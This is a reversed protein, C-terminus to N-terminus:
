DMLLFAGSAENIADVIANTTRTSGTLADIVSDSSSSDTTLTQNANFATFQEYFDPKAANQGYGATEASVDFRIGVISGDEAFGVTAPLAGGYGNGEATIVFGIINGSSDLAQVIQTVNPFQTAVDTLPIQEFEAAEPFLELQVAFSAELEQQDRAEQTIDSVLALATVCVMAIITLIVVPMFGRDILSTKNEDNKAPM